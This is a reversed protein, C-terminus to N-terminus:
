RRRWQGDRYGEEYGERFGARYNNRYAEKPGYERFYGDEADRYDGHGVPNYRDRDRGDEAGKEYGDSYGRAFAPEDYGGRGRREIPRGGRRLREYGVRYGQAFGQRFDRFDGRDEIARRNSGRQVGRYVDSRELDFSRNAHADQEGTRLGERYGREFAERASTGGWNRTGAPFQAPQALTPVALVGLITVLALRHIWIRGV